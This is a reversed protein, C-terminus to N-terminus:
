HSALKISALAHRAPLSTTSLCSVAAEALLNSLPKVLDSFPDEIEALVYELVHFSCVFFHALDTVNQVVKHEIQTNHNLHTYICHHVQLFHVIRALRLTILILVKYFRSQLSNRKRDVMVGSTM